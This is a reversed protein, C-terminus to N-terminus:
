GESGGSRRLAPAAPIQLALTARRVSRQEIPDWLVQLSPQTRLSNRDDAGLRTSFRTTSRGSGPASTMPGCAVPAARASRPRAVRARVGPTKTRGPPVGSEIRSTRMRVPRALAALTRRPDRVGRRDWHPAPKVVPRLHRRIASAFPRASQGRCFSSRSSWRMQGGMEADAGVWPTEALRQGMRSNAARHRRDDVSREPV